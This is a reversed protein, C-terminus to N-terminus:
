FPYYDDGLEVGIVDSFEVLHWDHKPDEVEIKILRLRPDLGTVNGTIVQDDLEGYVTITVEITNAKAVQLRGFMEGMEEESFEPKFRKVSQKAQHISAEKHQPLIMRSSEWFMNSGPTLKNPKM